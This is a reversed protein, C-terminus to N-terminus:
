KKTELETIRAKLDSIEQEIESTSVIVRPELRGKVGCEFNPRLFDIRMKINDEITGKCYPFENWKCEKCIEKESM